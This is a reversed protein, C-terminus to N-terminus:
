CNHDLKMGDDGITRVYLRGDRAIGERGTAM